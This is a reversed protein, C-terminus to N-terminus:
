PQLRRFPRSLLKIRRSWNKFSLSGAGTEGKGSRFPLALRDGLAICLPVQLDHLHDSLWFATQPMSGAVLLIDPQHERIRELVKGHEHQTCRQKLQPQWLCHLDPTPPQSTSPPEGAGVFLIRSQCRKATRIMAQLLENAEVTVPLPTGLRRSRAVISEDAALVAAAEEAIQQLRPYEEVLAVTDLDASVFYEPRGRTIIAEALDEIQNINLRAFDLDWIAVSEAHPIPPTRDGTFSLGLFDDQLSEVADPLVDTQHTPSFGPMFRVMISDRLRPYM